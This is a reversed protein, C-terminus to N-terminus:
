ITISFFNFGKNNFSKSKHMLRHIPIGMTWSIVLTKYVYKQCGLFVMQYPILEIFKDCPILLSSIRRFYKCLWVAYRYAILTDWFSATFESSLQSRSFILNSRQLPRVAMTQIISIRTYPRLDHYFFKWFNESLKLVTTFYTWIAWM